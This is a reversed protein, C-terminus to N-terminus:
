KKLGACPKQHNQFTQIWVSAYDIARETDILFIDDFYCSTEAEIERVQAYFSGSYHQEYARQLREVGYQGYGHPNCQRYCKSTTLYTFMFAKYIFWSIVKESIAYTMNEHLDRQFKSCNFEKSRYNHTTAKHSRIEEGILGDGLPMQSEYLKNDGSSEMLNDVLTNLLVKEEVSRVATKRDSCKPHTEAVPDKPDDHDIIDIKGDDNASKQKTDDVCIPSDGDHDVAEVGFNSTSQLGFGYLFTYLDNTYDTLLDYLEQVNLLLSGTVWLQHSMSRAHCWKM